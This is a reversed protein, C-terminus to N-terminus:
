RHPLPIVPCERHPPPPPPSVRLYVVYTRLHSLAYYLCASFQDCCLQGCLCFRPIDTESTLGTKTAKMKHVSAATPAKSSTLYLTLSFGTKYGNRTLSVTLLSRIVSCRIVSRRIVSRWFNGFTANAFTLNVFTSFNRIHMVIHLMFVSMSQSGSMSQPVSKSQFVSMSKSFSMSQSVSM